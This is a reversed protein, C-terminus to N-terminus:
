VSVDCVSLVQRPSTHFCGANNQSNPHRQASIIICKEEPFTLSQAQNFPPAQSCKINLRWKNRKLFNLLHLIIQTLFPTVFSSIRYEGDLELISINIGKIDRHVRMRGM